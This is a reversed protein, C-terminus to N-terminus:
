QVAIQRKGARIETIQVEFMRGEYQWFL